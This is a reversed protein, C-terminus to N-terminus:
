ASAWGGSRMANDDETTTTLQSYQQMNENLMNLGQQVKQFGALWQNVAEQFRVSAADSRWQSALNSQAATVNRYSDHAENQAQAFAVVMGSITAQDAVIGMNTPM